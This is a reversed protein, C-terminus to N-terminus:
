APVEKSHRARLALFGGLYLVLGLVLYSLYVARGHSVFFGILERFVGLALIAVLPTAVLLALLALVGFVIARSVKVANDTAVSRVKGVVREVTDALEPAWNSDTFPNGLM